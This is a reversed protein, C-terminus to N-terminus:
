IKRKKTQDTLDIGTRGTWLDNNLDGLDVEETLGTGEMDAPQGTIDLADASTRTTNSGMNEPGTADAGAENEGYGGEEEGELNKILESKVTKITKTDDKGLRDSQENQRDRDDQTLENTQRLRNNNKKNAMTKCGIIWIVGIYM